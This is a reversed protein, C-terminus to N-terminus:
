HAASFRGHRARPNLQAFNKQSLCILTEHDGAEIYVHPQNWVTDEVITEIGYCQGAAPVAGRSCDRFREEVEAENALEIEQGLESELQGLDIHHSAPLVALVHGFSNRILVGKALRDAPIHCVKATRMSSMTPQHPVLAYEVGHDSLFTQLSASIAM